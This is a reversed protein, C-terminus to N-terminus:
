SYIRQALYDYGSDAIKSFILKMAQLDDFTEIGKVNPYKKLLKNSFYTTNIEESGLLITTKSCKAM